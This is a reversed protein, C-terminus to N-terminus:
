YSLPSTYLIIMSSKQVPVAIYLNINQDRTFLISTYVSLPFLDQKHEISQVWNTTCFSIQELCNISVTTFFILSSVPTTERESSDRTMVYKRVNTRVNSLINHPPEFMGTFTLPRYASWYEHLHLLAASVTTQLKLDSPSTQGPHLCLAFM